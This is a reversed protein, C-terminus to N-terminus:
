SCRTAGEERPTFVLWREMVEADETLSVLGAVYRGAIRAHAPITAYTDPIGAWVRRVKGDPFVAAGCRTQGGHPYAASEEELWTGRDWTQRM